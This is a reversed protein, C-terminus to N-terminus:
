HMGAVMDDFDAEFSAWIGTPDDDGERQRPTSIRMENGTLSGSAIAESYGTHGHQPASVPQKRVQQVPKTRRPYSVDPRLPKEPRERGIVKVVRDLMRDVKAIQFAVEKADM